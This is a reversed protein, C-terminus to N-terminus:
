NVTLVLVSSSGGSACGIDGSNGGPTQVLVNYNGPGPIVGTTITVKLEQSSLVTTSLTTGNVVVLSSAVFQSGKITLVTGQQVEAFSMSSPSLSGILPKPRSAGCLPNSTGCGAFFFLALLVPLSLVCKRFRVSISSM